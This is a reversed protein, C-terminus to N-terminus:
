EGKKVAEIFRENLLQVSLLEYLKDAMDVTIDKNKDQYTVAYAERGNALLLVKYVNDEKFASVQINCAGCAAMFIDYFSPVAHRKLLEKIELVPRGFNGEKDWHSLVAQKFSTRNIKPSFPTQM